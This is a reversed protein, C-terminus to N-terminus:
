KIKEIKNIKNSVDLARDVFNRAEDSRKVAFSIYRDINDMSTQLRNYVDIDGVDVGLDQASKELRDITNEIDRREKDMKKLFTDIVDFSNKVFDVESALNDFLSVINDIQVEVGKVTGELSGSSDSFKDLFAIANDYTKTAEIFLDQADGVVSLEIKQFERYRKTNLKNFYKKSM